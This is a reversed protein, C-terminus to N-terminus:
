KDLIKEIKSGYHFKRVDNYFTKIEDFSLIEKIANTIRKADDKAELEKLFSDKKHYKEKFYKSEIKNSIKKNSSAVYFLGSPIKDSKNRNTSLNLPILNEVINGPGGWKKPVFHDIDYVFDNSVSNFAIQIKQRLQPPIIPSLENSQIKYEEIPDDLYVWSNQGKLKSNNPDLLIAEDLLELDIQVELVYYNLKGDTRSSLKNIVENGWFSKAGTTNKYQAEKKIFNFVDELLSFSSIKIDRIEGKAVIGYDIIYIYVIDGIECKSGLPRSGIKTQTFWDLGKKRRKNSTVNLGSDRKIVHYKKM